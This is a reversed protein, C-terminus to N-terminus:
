QATCKGKAEGVKSEVIRVEVRHGPLTVRGSQVLPNEQGETELHKQGQYVDALIDSFPLHPVHSYKNGQSTDQPTVLPQSSREVSLQPEHLSAKKMYRDKKRAELLQGGM